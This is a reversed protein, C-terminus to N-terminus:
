RQEIPGRWNLRVTIPTVDLGSPPMGMLFRQGDRSPTVAAAGERRLTQFLPRAPGAVPVAGLDMHAAMLMGDGGIYYLEKGDERWRPSAGGTTSVQWRDGRPPYPQVWIERRGSETSDYAIWKADPSFRGSREGHQSHIVLKPSGSGDSSVVGIDWSTRSSYAGYLILRGDSSWDQPSVDGGDFTALLRESGGANTPKVYFGPV